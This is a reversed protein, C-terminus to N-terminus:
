ELVTWQTAVPRQGPRHCTLSLPGGAIREIVFRGQEDAEVWATEHAGGHVEVRAPGPPILQGLLQRSDGTSTVEIEVALGPAEFTLLRPGVGTEALRVTAAEELRSDETLAALEADLTHLGYSQKALDLVLAPPPDLRSFMEALRAMLEEDDMLQDPDPGRGRQDDM